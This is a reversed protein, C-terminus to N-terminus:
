EEIRINRYWTESPPGAHIQLGIFGCAPINADTETYDVTLTGNLYIKINNGKCVIEYENWDNPRFISDILKRDPAVLFRNRRSEDYLAGWYGANDTMDAQYGIMEGPMNGDAPARVSRFQVGGNAGQGIAKCEIRLTFDGYEKKTSLFENRPISEELSGGVIAGDEIRFWQENDRFEWGDFTKGDFIANGKMMTQFRELLEKARQKDADRSAIALAKEAMQVKQELPLGMQRIVRLYGSLARVRYREQPHKEAIELLYPAVEPTTWRGLLQTAKDCLADNTGMAVSAIAAAAKEGGLQFLLDLYFGADMEANKLERAILDVANERDATKRCMTTLAPRIIHKVLDAETKLRALMARIDAVDPVVSSGYAWYAVIRIDFDPDDFLAKVKDKAAAIQREGIVELAALKLKKDNTDLMAIIKKNFEADKFQKLSTQAAQSLEADSSSVALLIADVARVDGIEGLAQVAALRLLPKDGQAIEILRPVINMDKRAGLNLILLAQKDESLNGMNELVMTGTKDSKVELVAKLIVKFSTKENKLLDVLIPLGKEEDLLISGLLAADQTLEEQHLPTAEKPRINTLATRAVTSFREDDLLKKLVPVADETGTRTLALCAMYVDHLVTANDTKNDLFSQITAIDDARTQSVTFISLALLIYLITYKKM